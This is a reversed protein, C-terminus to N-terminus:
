ASWHNAPEKVRTWPGRHYARVDFSAPPRSPLRGLGAFLSDPTFGSRGRRPSRANVPTVGRIAMTPGIRSAPRVSSFAQCGLESTRLGVRMSATWARAPRAHGSDFGQNRRADGPRMVRSLPKNYATREDDVHGRSTSAPMHRRISGADVTSEREIRRMFTRPHRRTAIPRVRDADLWWKIRVCPSAIRASLRLVSPSLASRIPSQRPQPRKDGRGRAPQPRITRRAPSERLM